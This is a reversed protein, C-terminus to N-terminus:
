GAVPAELRQRHHEAAHRGALQGFVAGKTLGSGGAYNTYFTGQMEGAVYLGPIVRGATNIVEGHDTSRLGGYTFTVGCHVPFARFPAKEIPLAWNTKDIALGSTAKGDLRSPDFEGKACGANYERITNAFRAPDAIGVEVALQELSDSIAHPVDYAREGGGEGKRLHDTQSDFIQYAVNGPLALVEKGLRAYTHLYFNEGEDTFREGDRNVLVGYPYALPFLYEEGMEMPPASAHVMTAHCGSWEGTTAADQRLAEEIADGTNFRTGRVKANDWGPGLYRARKEPSAEFGGAALVIARADIRAIGSPDRILAGIVEGTESRLIRALATEYLIEAGGLEVAAFLAKLIGVGQEIPRIVTGPQWTIQGERQHSGPLERAGELSPEWRMGHGHLWKMTAHSEEAIVTMTELDAKQDSTKMLDELFRASPYPDVVMREALSDKIESLARLDDLGDYAFRYFGTFATNGGRQQLPAKEIVTVRAGADLASLAACLAANGAGVVLVDTEARVDYVV